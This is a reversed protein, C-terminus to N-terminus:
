ACRGGAVGVLLDTTWVGGTVDSAQRARRATGEHQFSGQARGPIELYSSLSSAAEDDRDCPFGGVRAHARLAPRTGDEFQPVDDLLKMGEVVRGRTVTLTPTISPPMWGLMIAGLLLAMTSARAACKSSARITSLAM